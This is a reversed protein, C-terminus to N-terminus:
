GTADAFETLMARYRRPVKSGQLRPNLRSTIVTETCYRRWLAQFREEEPAIAPEHHQEMTVEVWRGHGADHVIGLSRRLDHLVWHQDRFREAFHPALLGIVDHDPTVAAYWFGPAVERFRVFGKLRHAEHGVRRALRHVAAVHPHALMGHVRDGMQRGLALYRWIAMGAEPAESLFARHVLHAGLPSVTRRITALTEAALDQDTTVTVTTDFLGTQETPRCSIETPVAGGACCQALVCLLGAFTGDYSCIM